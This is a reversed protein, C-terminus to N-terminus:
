SEIQTTKTTSQINKIDTLLIGALGRALAIRALDPKNVKLAICQRNLERDLALPVRYRLIKSQEM